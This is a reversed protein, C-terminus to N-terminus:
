VKNSEDTVEKYNTDTAEEDSKKNPLCICLIPIGMFYLLAIIVGIEGWM